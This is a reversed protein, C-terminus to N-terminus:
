PLDIAFVDNAALGYLSGDFFRVSAFTGQTTSGLASPTFVFVDEDPGSIGTVAFNGTTSLYLKGSADVAVADVDEASNSLGVDSGDFYVAWSGATVTGLSTPTFALLDEDEVSFGEPLTATNTTSVLLRGDALLEVADVDEGATSLGVDSGDFYMSFTGATAAGLSTATFRLVDSDDMAVGGVTGSTTFSMLIQTPGIISFGDIAFSTLGVDSGDFYLSFASGDFALIDDNAVTLGGPLTADNLLSLYMVATPQDTVTATTTAITSTDDDSVRLAVNYTRAQAYTHQVTVGVAEAQFNGDHDFDWEFSLPDAGPDTATGSLTIPSGTIGTYPGGPAPLPSVNSVTAGATDLGVGSRGDNVTLTVSYAGDNAYTHSAMVTDNAQDVTGAQVVGDGWEITATHLDNTNPDSFSASLTVSAGETTGLDPGADVIPATNTSTVVQIGSQGSVGDVSATITATGVAVGTVVGGSSVTAIDEASSSWTAACGAMPAGGSDRPVATFAVTAGVEV